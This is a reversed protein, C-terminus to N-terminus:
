AVETLAAFAAGELIFSHTRAETAGIGRHFALALADGEDADWWLFEGGEAATAEALAAVLGRGLGSRRAEPAVYLDNMIAGWRSAGSDYYPHASAFGQLLGDEEAVLLTVRADAILDRAVRTATIREPHLGPETNLARLLAALPAADRGEARRIM